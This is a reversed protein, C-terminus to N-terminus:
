EFKRGFGGGLFTTHVTVNDPPCGAIKSATYQVLTQCQTPAWVEVGTPQVHATANLPEMTSHALYPLRYEVKVKRSAKQLQEQINGRSTAIAGADHSHTELMKWIAAQDLKAHPGEDWTVALAERGKRATWYHDAIVGVGYQLNVVQRVGPIARAKSDDVTAVKGGFVPCRLVTAYLMGPRRVDLGFITKGTTKDAIDFRPVSHGIYNFTSKLKVSAPVAVEAAKEALQGYAMRRESAAHVVYGKDTTLADAPVNWVQAAAAVLMARATAGAHRLADFTTRVSTSGGTFQLGIGPVQYAKDAPAEEPRVQHIDADLEDAVIAPLATLVGQGMESKPVLVTVVNDTGIRLFANPIFPQGSAPAAPQAQSGPPLLFALLLGGAGVKIFDRRSIITDSM